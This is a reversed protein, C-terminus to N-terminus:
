APPRCPCESLNPWFAADQAPALPSAVTALMSLFRALRGSWGRPPEAAPFLENAFVRRLEAQHEEALQLLDDPHAFHTV